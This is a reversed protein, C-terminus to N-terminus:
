RYRNSTRLARTQDLLAMNSRPNLARREKIANQWLDELVACLQERMDTTVHTYVWDMGKLTRDM